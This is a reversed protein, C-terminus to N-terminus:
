KLRLGGVYDQTSVGNSTDMWAAIFYNPGDWINGAYDGLGGDSGNDDPNSFSATLEEPTPFDFSASLLTRRLRPLRRVM